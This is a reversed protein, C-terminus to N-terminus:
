EVPKSRTYEYVVEGDVAHLRFTITSDDGARKTNVSLYGGMVRHFQHYKANEGPSGGAHQDSIPGSSFEHVGTAPHISHYQWHRDGCAIFFNDPLNEQIFTRFEAGEHHYTVNAHNDKKTARDPGVIPTPSILVKWDADSALLTEKLWAKQEAGWISKEPGDEMPNPSRFDRGEVLWVQLGKGWRFTRYPKDSMPVQEAYVKLGQEFTFDGMFDRVLQPWGDDAYSDHDDKEWYGPTRLHFDILKPYSYMRHWHYRALDITTAVPDDSDYYVTDGTPVIFHPNLKAMSDYALFGDAHDADKYMQGTIVTFTVDAYEDAEPATAFSGLLPRHLVSGDASSTEASFYYKTSPRLNSLKFHLTFDDEAAAKKWDTEWWQQVDGGSVPETPFHSFLEPQTTYRVRARGAAGPVSGELDNPDPKLVPGKRDSVGRKVIGDARRRNGATVRMSVIASTDSVEGVKVGSAQHSDEITPAGGCSIMGALLLPIATLFAVRRPLVLRDGSRM